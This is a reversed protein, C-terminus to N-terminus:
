GADSKQAVAARGADTKGSAADRGADVEAPPAADEVAAASSAEPISAGGDASKAGVDSSSRESAGRESEADCLCYGPKSCGRFGRCSCSLEGKVCGGEAQHPSAPPMPAGTALVFFDDAVLEKGGFGFNCKGLAYKGPHRGHDQKLIAWGTVHHAICVDLPAGKAEYGGVLARSLDMNETAPIHWFADQRAILVQYEDFVLEKGAWGVNCRGGFIKGPHVGGEQVARCVGLGAQFQADFGGEYRGEPFTQGSRHPVWAYGRNPSNEVMAKFVRTFPM